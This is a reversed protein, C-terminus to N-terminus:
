PKIRRLLKLYIPLKLLFEAANMYDNAESVIVDRLASDPLELAFAKLRRLDITKIESEPDNAENASSSLRAMSIMM